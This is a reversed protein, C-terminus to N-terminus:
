GETFRLGVLVVLGMRIIRGLFVAPLFLLLAAWRPYHLQRAVWQYCRTGVAVVRCGIVLGLEM